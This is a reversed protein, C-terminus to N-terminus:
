KCLADAVYSAVMANPKCRPTYGMSEVYGLASRLVQNSKYKPDPNLDIDIFNPKQIGNQTLHEAIIISYEVENWLRTFRDQIRPLIDKAYIVHGGKGPNHLVIVAAYTTKDKRNQSDSGIFITTNENKSLFDKIYPVLDIDKRTSLSKFQLNM